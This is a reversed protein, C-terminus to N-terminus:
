KSSERLGIYREGSEEREGREREEREGGEGFSAYVRREGGGIESRGGGGHLTAGGLQIEFLEEFLGGDDRVVVVNGVGFVVDEFYVVLLDYNSARFSALVKM